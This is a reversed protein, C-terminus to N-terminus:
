PQEKTFTYTTTVSVVGDDDPDRVVSPPLECVIPSCDGDPLDLRAHVLSARVDEAWDLAGNATHAFTQVVIRGRRLGESADLLYTAGEGLTASYSGYPYSPKAPVSGTAYLRAVGATATAVADM